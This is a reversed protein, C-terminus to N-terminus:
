YSNDPFMERHIPYPLFGVMNRITLYYLVVALRVHHFLGPISTFKTKYM